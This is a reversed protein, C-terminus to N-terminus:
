LGAARDPGPPEKGPAPACLGDEGPLPPFSCCVPPSSLSHLLSMSPFRRQLLHLPEKPKGRVRIDELKYEVMIETTAVDAWEDPGIGASRQSSVIVEFFVMKESLKSFSNDFCLRYDGDETPDVRAPFFFFFFFSTHFKPFLHSKSDVM